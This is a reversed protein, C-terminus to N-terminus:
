IVLKRSFWGIRVVLFTIMLLACGALVGSGYIVFNCAKKDGDPHDDNLFFICVDDSSAVQDFKEAIEHNKSVM